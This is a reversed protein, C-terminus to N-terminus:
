PLIAPNDSNQHVTSGQAKGGGTNLTWREIGQGSGPSLDAEFGSGDALWVLPGFADPQYYHATGGSLNGSLVTPTPLANTVAVLQGDPSIALFAQTNATASTLIQTAHSGDAAAAFFKSAIVPQQNSNVSVSTQQYVIKTGDLSADWGLLSVDGEAGQFTSTDGLTIPAGIESQTTLNYRHLLASGKSSTSGSMQALPSVELYFLTSCRAVGEYAAKVGPLPTLSNQSMDYRYTVTGGSGNGGGGFGGFILLTHDDAWAFVRHVSERESALASAPLTVRTVTHTNTDVIYPYLAEVYPESVAVAVVLHRADPAWAIATLADDGFQGENPLGLPYTFTSLVTEPGGNISGVVQKNSVWAEATAAAHTACPALAPTATAKQGNAAPPAGAGYRTAGGTSSCASLSLVLLVLMFLGPHSFRQGKRM